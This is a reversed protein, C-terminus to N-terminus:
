LICVRSFKQTENMAPRDAGIKATQIRGNYGPYRDSSDDFSESFADLFVYIRKPNKTVNPTITEINIKPSIKVNKRWFDRVLAIPIILGIANPIRATILIRIINFMSIPFIKGFNLEGIRVFGSQSANMKPRNKPSITRGHLGAESAIRKAIEVEVIVKRALRPFKMKNPTPIPVGSKSNEINDAFLDCVIIFQSPKWLLFILKIAPNIM